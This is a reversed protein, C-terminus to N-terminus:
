FLAADLVPFVFFVPILRQGTAVSLLALPGVIASVVNELGLDRV